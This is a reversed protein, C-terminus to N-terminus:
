STGKVGQLVMTVTGLSLVHVDKLPSLLLHDHTDWAHYVLGEQYYAAQNETVGEWPNM